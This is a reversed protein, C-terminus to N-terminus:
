CHTATLVLNPWVLYSVWFKMPKLSLCLFFSLFFHYTLLEPSIRHSWNNLSGWLSGMWQKLMGLTHDENVGLCSSSHRGPSLLHTKGCEKKLLNKLTSHSVREMCVGRTLYKKENALVWDCSWMQRYFLSALWSGYFKSPSLLILYTVLCHKSCIGKHLHPFWTDDGM